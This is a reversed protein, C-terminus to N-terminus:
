LKGNERVLKYVKGDPKTFVYIEGRSDKGFRMEVRKNKCLKALTTPASNMSIHWEKITAQKGLQLEKSNVYFLRGSNLDGFVYKGALEPVERGTYEFGGAIAIGEDHDYEAVPYSVHYVSDDSPLAYVKGVNNFFREEFNGERIPWGYFHGPLIINVSEINTQGINVALLQGAKTWNFRHPNRFGYAFVERAFKTSDNKSFPNHSPIGYQRNRSNTGSPDIRMLSGWVRNPVPSVLSQGIEASGGDGIGVYLLGYDKDGAKSRPNFAIEQMGHIPTPMDIRLLERSKGSFPFAAPDCKWENLVWQLAVPISDPYDFDAKGAYAPEAHTTYLLGNKAFRPHFAFSGFGSNIGPQTLLKPKLTAMDLYVVPQGDVLKYMKGRLDSIYLDGSSPHYDLKIIRTFPLQNASPPVQTLLEVGVLLDSSEISDPIPNKIDNPDAKVEKRVPKKQTHMYAIIADIEGSPLHGFSPMVAKYRKFLRQARADRSEIVKNPDSVFNKIWEVSTDSTIGGLQPGIGNRKFNHCSACNSLFSNEGQAITVSDTPISKEDSSSESGCSIVFCSFGTLILSSIILLIKKM